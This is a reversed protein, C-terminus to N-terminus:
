ALKTWCSSGIEEGDRLRREFLFVLHVTSAGIPESRSGM